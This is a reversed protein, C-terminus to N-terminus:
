LGDRGTCSRRWERNHQRLSCTGTLSLPRTGTFSLEQSLTSRFACCQSAYEVGALMFNGAQCAATCMAVTMNGGPLSNQFYALTRGTTGERFFHFLCFCDAPAMLADSHGWLAVLDLKRIAAPMNTAMSALTRSRGWPSPATSSVSTALGAAHKARTAEARLRASGRTARHLLRRLAAAVIQGRITDADDKISHRPCPTVEHRQTNWM